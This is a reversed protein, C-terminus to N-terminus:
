SQARLTAALMILAGLDDMGSCWEKWNEESEDETPERPQALIVEMGSDQVSGFTRFRAMRGSVKLGFVIDDNEKSKEMRWDHEDRADWLAKKAPLPAIAYNDFLTCGDSGDNTFLMGLCKFVVYWRRRSEEFVWDDHTTGYTLGFPSHREVNGIKHNLASATEWMASLLAVHINNDATEGEGLLLLMYNLLAQMSSLLEWRGMNAYQGCSKTCSVCCQTIKTGVEVHVRECELSINKWVLRKSAYNGNGSGLLQMLSECNALSELPKQYATMNDTLMSAHIFPPPPGRNRLMMPYATLMRRMMIATVRASEKYATTRTFRQMPHPPMTSITTSTMFLTDSTTYNFSNGLLFTDYIGHATTNSSSYDELPQLKSADIDMSNWNLPEQLGDSTDLCGSVHDAAIIDAQCGDLSQPDEPSASTSPGVTSPTHINPLTERM